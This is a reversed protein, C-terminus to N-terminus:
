LKRSSYWLFSTTDKETRQILSYKTGHIKNSTISIEIVQNLHHRSPKEVTFNTNKGKYNIFIIPSSSQSQPFIKGVVITTTNAQHHKEIRMGQVKNTPTTINPLTTRNEMSEHINITNQPIFDLVIIEKNNLNNQSEKAMPLEM